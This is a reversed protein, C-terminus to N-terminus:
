YDRKGPVYKVGILNLGSEERAMLKSCDLVKHALGMLANHAQSMCIDSGVRSLTYLDV